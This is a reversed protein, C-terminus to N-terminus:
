ALVRARRHLNYVEVLGIGTSGGVGSMVATYNGPSLILVLASEFDNDPPITTGRIEVEQSQGSSDGIKWNNNSAIKDGNSNHVEVTPDALAGPIHLSPGIARVM